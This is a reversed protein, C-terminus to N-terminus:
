GIVSTTANRDWLLSEMNLELCFFTLAENLLRIYFSVRAETCNLAVDSPSFTNHGFKPSQVEMSESVFLGVLLGTGGSTAGPYTNWNINKKLLRACFKAITYNRTVDSRRFQSHVFKPPQVKMSGNVFSDHSSAQIM